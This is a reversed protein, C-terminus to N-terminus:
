NREQVLRDFSLHGLYICSYVRAKQFDHFYIITVLLFYFNRTSIVYLLLICFFIISVNVTPLICGRRQKIFMTFIAHSRSSQENMNTSATKRNLAGNKLVMLTQFILIKFM